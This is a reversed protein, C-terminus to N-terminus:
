YMVEDAKASEDLLTQAEIFYKLRLALLGAGVWDVPQFTEIKEKQLQDWQKLEDM